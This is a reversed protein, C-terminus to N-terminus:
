SPINHEFILLAAEWGGANGITNGGYRHKDTTLGVNSDFPGDLVDPSEVDKWGNKWRLIRTM